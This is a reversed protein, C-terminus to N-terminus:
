VWVHERPARADHQMNFDVKLADLELCDLKHRGDCM